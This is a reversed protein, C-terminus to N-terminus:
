KKGDAIAKLAYVLKRQNGILVNALGSIPSRLSGLIQALLEQKGPLKALGIVEEKTIKKAGLIGGLIELSKKEKALKYITKVFNTEEQQSVSVALQGEMEKAGIKEGSNKEFALDVLRKKIVRFVAGEKKLNKRLASMEKVPLGQYNVFVVAKATKLEKSLEEVIKKKDEKKLM